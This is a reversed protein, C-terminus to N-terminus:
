VMCVNLMNSMNIEMGFRDEHRKMYQYIRLLMPLYKIMNFENNIKSKVFRYVDYYIKFRDNVLMSYRDLNNINNILLDACQTSPIIGEGLLAFVTGIAEGVGVINDVIYPKCLQPPTLRVPRGVKKVIRGGYKSIFENVIAVHRRNKDGAGVHAYNDNLPFYWFYGTMSPFPKIIFDDFPLKDYKVKYQITPIWLEDKPKPLLSRNFGTSDIVLDFDDKIDANIMEGYRVKCGKILDKILGIKDYTCLGKLKISFSRSAIVDMRAGKHLIYDEFNLDCRSILGQMGKVTTAWACISDHEQEKMREFGIVEHEKSLRNLLYAGAVGIGVVAIRM